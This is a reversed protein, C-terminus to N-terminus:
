WRRGLFISGPASNNSPTRGAHIVTGEDVAVIPTRQPNQIDIGHHWLYNGRGNSGYPYYYSGWTDYAQTFPRTFWFHDQALRYDPLNEAALITRSVPVPTPTETVRPSTDLLVSTDFFPRGAAPLTPPAEVALNPELPTEPPLDGILMPAPTATETPPIPTATPPIPTATPPIPTATPPPTATRTPTATKTATPTHTPTATSTPTATAPRTPTKTATSTAAAIVEAQSYQSVGIWLMSVVTILLGLGVGITIRVIQKDVSPFVSM